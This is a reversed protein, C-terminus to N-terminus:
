GRSPTFVESIGQLWPLALINGYKMQHEDNSWVRFLAGPFDREFLKLVAVDEDTVKSASKIEIVVTEKGPRDIILDIEHNTKTKLFSFKFDLRYYSNIRICEAIIFHEFANGYAFTRPVIPVNLMGEMARKVGTDFLYFKPSQIQQARVSRSYAELYFGLFTDSLIEFYKKVTKDDVGTQKATKAFNIITGNTQAAIEIFKRFPDLNQILREDWVEEKIYTRCYTRLYEKRLADDTVQTIAPLTGWNLANVLDFADGLETVTLPYFDCVFARGALLNAGVMKLKRASSGTLAFKIHKTRPNELTAHVVDLLKPVKQVEDIAIWDLSAERALAERFLDQPAMTFRDFHDANLLDITWTRDLPLLSRIFTTKGTGRAGFLFFSNSLLPKCIRNFMEAGM